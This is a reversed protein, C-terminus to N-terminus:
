SGLRGADVMARVFRLHEVEAISWGGAVAPLGALRGVLTGAERASLGAIRLRRYTEGLPPLSARDSWPDAAFPPISM